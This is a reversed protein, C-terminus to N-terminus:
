VLSSCSTVIHQHYALQIQKVIPGVQGDAVPQEDIMVVPTVEATTSTIFVEDAARLFDVTFAEEVVPLQLNAALKLVAKRTVGHLILNTEPHTYLRGNKVAFVNSSSGETVTGNRHQIADDAGQDKAHQKALVAGLLNLSKIDCRLWRIDDFTITKIGNELQSYPRSKKRVYATLIPKTENTPFEFQRPAAGRTVQLYLIADDQETLSSKAILTHAISTLEEPSHPLTLFLEKSSRVLRTLHDEWLFLKGNYIRVVEYIGDGFQYGRDEPQIAAREQEIWTGNVYYM